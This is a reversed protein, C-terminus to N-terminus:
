CKAPELMWSSSVPQAPPMSVSKDLTVALRSGDTSFLLGAGYSFLDHFNMKASIVGAGVNRKAVFRRQLATQLAPRNSILPHQAPLVATASSLWTDEAEYTLNRLAACTCALSGLSYLSLRPLVNCTLADRLGASTLTVHDSLADAEDIAEAGEFDLLCSDSGTVLLM